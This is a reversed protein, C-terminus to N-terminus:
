ITRRCINVTMSMKQVCTTLKSTQKRLFPTTTMQPIAMTFAMALTTIIRCTKVSSTTRLEQLTFTQIMFRPSKSHSDTAAMKVTRKITPQEKALNILPRRKLQLHIRKLNFWPQNKFEMLQLWLRELSTTAELKLWSVTQTLPTRKSTKNSLVKKMTLM